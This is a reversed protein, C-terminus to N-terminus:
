FCHKSHLTLYIKQKGKQTANTFGWTNIVIPVSEQNYGISINAMNEIIFENIFLSIFYYNIFFM